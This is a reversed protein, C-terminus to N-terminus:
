DQNLVEKIWPLYNSVRTYIAPYDIRGCAYGFSVVGILTAKNSKDDIQMLPGGSDGACSDEIITSNFLRTGYACLMSEKACYGCNMGVRKRNCQRKSTLNLRVRKPVDSSRAGQIGDPTDILSTTGWGSVYIVGGENNEGYSSSMSPMCIPQVRHSLRVSRALVLISIDNDAGGLARKWQGQAANGKLQHARPNTVWKKIKVLEGDMEGRNHAGVMVYEFNSTHGEYMSGDCHAATMVHRRSILTGGCGGCSRETSCLSVLWPESHRTIERGGIIRSYYERSMIESSRSFISYGCITDDDQFPFRGRKSPTVGNTTKEGDDDIQVLMYKSAVMTLFSFAIIGRM